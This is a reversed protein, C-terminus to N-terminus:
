NSAPPSESVAEAGDRPEEGEGAFLLGLGLVIMVVMFFIGYRPVRWRM